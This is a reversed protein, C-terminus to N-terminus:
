SSFSKFINLGSTMFVECPDELCKCIPCGLSDTQFGEQCLMRCMPRKCRVLPTDEEALESYSYVDPEEDGVDNENEGNLQDENLDYNSEFEADKEEDDIDGVSKPYEYESDKAQHSDPGDLQGLLDQDHSEHHDEHGDPRGL